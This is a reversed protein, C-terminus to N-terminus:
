FKLFVHETEISQGGVSLNDIYESKGLIMAQTKTANVQFCNDTFWQTLKMTNQNLTSELVVPSEHAAYQTTDDVCLRLLFALLTILTM